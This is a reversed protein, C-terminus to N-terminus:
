CNWALAGEKPVALQDLEAIASRKGLATLKYFRRRPRGVEAPDINEWKSDLWEAKELRLLMPYLTGSGIKTAKAIESGSQGQRSNVLLFRLVKLTQNSLRIKDTM